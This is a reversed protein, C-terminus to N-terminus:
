FNAALWAAPDAVVRRVHGDRLVHVAPELLRPATGSDDCALNLAAALLEGPAIAQYERGDVSVMFREGGWEKRRWSLGANDDSTPDGDQIGQGVLYRCHKIMAERSRPACAELLAAASRRVQEVLGAVEAARATGAAALFEEDRWRALEARRRAREADHLARAAAEVVLEARELEHAADGYDRASVGGSGDLIRTKFEDMKAAAQDRAQQAKDLAERAQGVPDATNARAM